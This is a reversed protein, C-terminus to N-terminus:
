REHVRQQKGNVRKRTKKKQWIGDTESVVDAKEMAAGVHQM